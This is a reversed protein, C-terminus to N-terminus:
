KSIVNGKWSLLSQSHYYKIVPQLTSIWWAFIRSFGNTNNSVYIKLMLITRKETEWSQQGFHEERRPDKLQDPLNYEWNNKNRDVFYESGYAGLQWRWLFFGDLLFMGSWSGLNQLFWIWLCSKPSKFGCGTCVVVSVVLSIWQGRGLIM